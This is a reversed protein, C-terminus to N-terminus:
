TQEAADCWGAPILAATGAKPLHPPRVTSKQNKCLQLMRIGTIKADVFSHIDNLNQTILNRMPAM